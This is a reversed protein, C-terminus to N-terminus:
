INNIIYIFIFLYTKSGRFNVLTKDTKQVPLLDSHMANRKKM